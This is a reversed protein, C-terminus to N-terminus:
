IAITGLEMGLEINEQQELKNQIHEALEPQLELSSQALNKHTSHAVSREQGVVGVVLREELQEVLREVIDDIRPGVVEVTHEVVTRGLGAVIRGALLGLQQELQWGLKLQM